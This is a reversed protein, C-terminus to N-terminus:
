KILANHHSNFFLKWEADSLIPKNNVTKNRLYFQDLDRSAARSRTIQQHAKELDLLAIDPLSNKSGATVFIHKFYLSAHRWRKSHLLGLTEGLKVVFKNHMDPGLRERGGKNYWRKLDIYGHLEKTVLIARWGTKDKIAGAFVLDPTKIGLKSFAVIADRERLVTPQGFPRKLSYYLHGRQRKIYLTGLSPDLIREVGSEGDRRENFAEVIEGRRQWWSEFDALSSISNKM